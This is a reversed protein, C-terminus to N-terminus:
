FQFYLFPNYTDGVLSVCSIILLVSPIIARYISYTTNVLSSEGSVSNIKRKLKPIISTCSFCAIILFIISSFVYTSAEHTIFSNSNLCFMGKLVTGLLKMNQFKFLIWGFFVVVLVYLHQWFSAFRKLKEGFIYKELALFVFYYLGWLVFNWSAGHWLGTLAWVAFMNFIHRPVSVRNGGLPIYVYDRFFSGLSMHWRRWFETISKSEYPYDFNEKYHFGSMLGMGIAMDSYASFDLYIQLMYFLIGIWLDFASHSSLIDINKAIDATNKIAADTLLLNDAFSGCNNAFLVKKALGSSFRMVGKNFDGSKVKRNILENEVDSYRVIPGAICQHFLSAYLLVMFYDPQADVDDRYVDVVYSILQFTYFSIGIPLAIAPVKEPYGTLYKLNQMTWTGYKFIGLLGLAIILSIILWLKKRGVSDERSIKLAFFWCCFSMFLLLLVYIPEGWAYFVLSFVLMVINKQKNNKALFCFLMNLPLFACVFILSSFVM